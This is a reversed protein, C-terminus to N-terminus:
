EMAGPYPFHRKAVEKLGNEDEKRKGLLKEILVQTSENSDPSNAEIRTDQTIAVNDCFLLNWELSSDVSDVKVWELRQVMCTAIM